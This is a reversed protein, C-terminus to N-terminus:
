NSQTPATYEIGPPTHQPNDWILVLHSGFGNNFRELRLEKVLDPLERWHKCNLEASLLDELDFQDAQERLWVVVPTGNGYVPVLCDSQKPKATFNPTFKLGVGLATKKGIVQRFADPEDKPLWFLNAGCSTKSKQLKQWHDKWYPRAAAHEETLRERSRVVVPHKDGLPTDKTALINEVPYNLLNAPLVFEVVMDALFIEDVATQATLLKKLDPILEKELQFRSYETRILELKHLATSQGGPVYYAKVKFGTPMKRSIGTPILEIVFHLREDDVLTIQAKKARYAVPDFELHLKEITQTVWGHLESRVEPSTTAGALNEAFQLLLTADKNQALGYFDYIENAPKNHIISKPSSVFGGIKVDLQGSQAILLSYHQHVVNREADMKVIIKHLASLREETYKGHIRSENFFRQAYAEVLAIQRSYLYCIIEHFAFPDSVDAELYALTDLFAVFAAESTVCTEVILRVNQRPTLMVSQPVIQSVERPLLKIFSTQAEYTDLSKCSLLLEEFEFKTSLLVELPNDIIGM